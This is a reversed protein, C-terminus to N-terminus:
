WVGSYKIVETPLNYHTQFCLSTKKPGRASKDAWIARKLWRGDPLSRAKGAWHQIAAVRITSAQSAILAHRSGQTSQVDGAKEVEDIIVIAGVHQKRLATQMLKGPAAM